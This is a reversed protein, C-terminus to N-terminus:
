KNELYLFAPNYIIREYIKGCILLLSVLRYNNTIRKDIKKYTPIIYSRKWIDPFIGSDICYKYIFSLPEVIESDCM